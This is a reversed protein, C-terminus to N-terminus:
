WDCLGETRNKFTGILKTVPPRPFAAVTAHLEVAMDFEKGAVPSRSDFVFLPCVRYALFVTQAFETEGLHICPSAGKPRPVFASDDAIQLQRPYAIPIFCILRAQLSVLPAAEHTPYVRVSPSVKM